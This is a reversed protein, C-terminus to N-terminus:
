QLHEDPTKTSSCFGSHHKLTCPQAIYQEINRPTSEIYLTEPAKPCISLFILNLTSPLNQFGIIRGVEPATSVSFEKLKLSNL